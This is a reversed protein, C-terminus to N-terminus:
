ALEQGALHAIRMIARETSFFRASPCQPQSPRRHGTLFYVGTPDVIPNVSVTEKRASLRCDWFITRAQSPLDLRLRKEDPPSSPKVIVCV